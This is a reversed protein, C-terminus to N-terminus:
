DLYQIHANATTDICIHLVTVLVLASWLVLSSSVMIFHRTLVASFPLQVQGEGLPWNGDGFWCGSAWCQVCVYMHSFSLSASSLVSSCPPSRRFQQWLCGARSVYRTQEHHPWFSFHNRCLIRLNRCYFIDRCTNLNSAYENEGQSDPSHNKKKKKEQHTSEAHEGQSHQLKPTCSNALSINAPDIGPKGLSCSSTSKPVVTVRRQRQVRTHSWQM